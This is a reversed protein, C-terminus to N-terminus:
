GNWDGDQVEVRPVRRTVNTLLEYSITGACAAVEDVSINEGWLEVPDGVSAGDVDTLDVALMDMSVRGILPARVGRIGVPTGNVAHRPYGDGYGICVMGMVTPRTSRWTEGYGVAEGPSLQRLAILRSELTMAAKLGLEPGHRGLMPSSGYLMIGPRTWDFMAQGPRFHAASNAVSRNIPALPATARDFVATQEASRESLEDDACAFHTMAGTVTVGASELRQCVARVEGPAFGLRNMGSNVKLWVAPRADGAELWALQHEHHVVVTFGKAECLPLDSAQHVGQMLLVPQTLGAQRLAQAEELCAVAYHDADNALARAVREIGHGYGDAKVVAMARASGARERALRFNHRLNDLHIRALTQRPM